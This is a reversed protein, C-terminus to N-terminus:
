GRLYISSSYIRSSGGADPDAAERVQRFTAHSDSRSINKFPNFRRSTEFHCITTSPIRERHIQPHFVKFFTKQNSLNLVLSLWVMSVICM